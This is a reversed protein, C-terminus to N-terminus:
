PDTRAVVVPVGDRKACYMARDSAEMLEAQTEGHRPYVAIGISAEVALNHNNIRMRASIAKAIRMALASYDREHPLGAVIAFFEDGGIRSVTDEARLVESIRKGVAKLVQDGVAHGYRDNVPKFGDLDLYLCAFTTGQRRATSVAVEFRDNLLLRNPLDTLSDHGAYYRLKEETISRESFDSLILIFHADSPAGHQAKTMAAWTVRIGGLSDRLWLEGRWNMDSEMCPWITSPFLDESPSELTLADVPRGLWVTKDEQVLREFAENVDRVVGDADMIVIAEGSFRYVTSWRQLQREREIMETVDDFSAVVLARLNRDSSGAPIPRSNVSIWRRSQWRPNHIGMLVHSCPEGTRLTVVTPHAEAPFPTGDPYIADWLPDCSLLGNLEESSLGLIRTAQPNHAVIRGEVDLLVVGEELSDMSVRYLAESEALAKELKCQETVDRSTTHLEIIEGDGNAIPQTLTEFWIYQGDSRRIRYRILINGDGTVAPEHTKSRISLRDDAHFLDYPDTGILEEPSYGLIRNVSPSVWLFRGDPSHLSVMDSMNEALRKYISESSEM